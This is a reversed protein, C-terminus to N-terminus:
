MNAKLAYLKIACVIAGKRSKRKGCLRNSYRAFFGINIKIGDVIDAIRNIDRHPSIIAESKEYM